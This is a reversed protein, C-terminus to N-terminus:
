LKPYLQCDARTHADDNVNSKDLYINEMKKDSALARKGKIRSIERKRKVMYLTPISLLLLLGLIIIAVSIYLGISRLMLMQRLSYALDDTTGSKLNFWFIPFYIKPVDNFTSVFNSPQLLINIQFRAAVDIPIGTTPELVIYFNHKEDDPNVGVVQDRLIPDAKHFHPLSVFGPAGYRCATINILGMPSCEGNCYCQGINVVDPDEVSEIVEGSHEATFFDETTTTPEFYKAQEHPYRRKTDNSLTKKGVSYKYGEIGQHYVTREYEYTVPRCLDASFITIDEETRFPPWFEGASGEVANCPSKYYKTTDKHNWFKFLGINRVDDEGTAMNQYGDFDTSGNRTYFWGFRDFPPTEDTMGALKGLDILVDKYGTFLLEDVTRVVHIEPSQSLLYSLSSRMIYSSYRVKHVASVTVVNLQTINDKLSGKSNKEDFYWFRRQLYSVTSNEPNFTINVKERKEVFSYPGVEVLIPKKGPIKLENPNTWNFFYFEM